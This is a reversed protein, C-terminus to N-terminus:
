WRAKSVGAYWWEWAARRETVLRSGIGTVRVEKGPAATTATTFLHRALRHASARSEWAIREVAPRWVSTWVTPLAFVALLILAPHVSVLLAVTVDLVPVHVHSRARLGPQAAHRASRSVRAARPARDDRGVGAAQRRAVRARDDGQRPLSATHAHQGNALVLHRCGLRQPRDGRRARARSRAPAHRRWAGQALGRGALRAASGPPFDRVRGAVAGTRPPLRAQM